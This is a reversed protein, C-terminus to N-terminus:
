TLEGLIAYMCRFRNHITTREGSTAFTRDFESYDASLCLYKQVSMSLVRGVTMGPIMNSAPEFKRLFFSNLRSDAHMRHCARRINASAEIKHLFKGLENVLFLRVQLALDVLARRVECTYSYLM